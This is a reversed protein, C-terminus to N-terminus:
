GWYTYMKLLCVRVFARYPSQSIFRELTCECEILFKKTTAIIIIIIIISFVNYVLHRHYSGLGLTHGSLFM